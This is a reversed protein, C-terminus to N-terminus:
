GEALLGHRVANYRTRQTNRPGTSLLANHRNAEIRRESTVKKKAGPNPVNVTPSQQDNTSVQQHNETINAKKFNLM